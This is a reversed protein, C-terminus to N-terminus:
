KVICFICPKFELVSQNKIFIGWVSCIIKADEVEVLLQCSTLACLVWQTSGTTIFLMSLFPPFHVSLELAEASFQILVNNLNM